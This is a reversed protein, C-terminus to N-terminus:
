KVKNYFDVSSNAFGLTPAIRALIRNWSTLADPSVLIRDGPYLKPNYKGSFVDDMGLSAMNLKGAAERVIYIKGFSKDPNVGGAEGIADMLSYGSFSIQYAGPKMIEGIIYVRQSAPAPVFFTDGDVLGIKSYDKESRNVDALNIPHIKSDRKLYITSLTAAESMPILKTIADMLTTKLGIVHKGPTKIGGTIYYFQSNYRAIDVMIHPEKIYKAYENELLLNVEKLTLGVVKVRKVLSANIEGDEDVVYGLITGTDAVTSSVDPHKFVIVKLEDGIGIRYSKKNEKLDAIEQEFSKSEFKAPTDPLKKKYSSCSILVFLCIFISVGLVRM